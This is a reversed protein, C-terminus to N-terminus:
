KPPNDKRQGVYEKYEELLLHQYERRAASPIYNKEELKKLIEDATAASVLRGEGHLNAMIENLGTIRIQTGDPFRLM